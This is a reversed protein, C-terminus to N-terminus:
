QWAVFMPDSTHRKAPEIVKFKGGCHCTPLGGEVHKGDHYGGEIWKHTTRATYGCKNCVIKVLRTSQRPKPFSRRPVDNEDELDAELETNRIAETDIPSWEKRKFAKRAPKRRSRSRADRAALKRHWKRTPRKAMKKKHKVYNFGKKKNTKAKAKGKSKRKPKKKM